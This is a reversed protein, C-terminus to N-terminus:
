PEQVTFTDVTPVTSPVGGVLTDTVKATLFKDGPEALVVSSFYKVSYTLVVIGVTPDSRGDVEVVEMVTGKLTIQSAKGGLYPDAVVAAEIQEALDDMRDDCPNSDTHAVQAVVELHLEHEDETSSEGAVDDSLTYVSIAPLEQETQPEVRTTDVRTGAATNAGILLTAFAHRILKRPHAM